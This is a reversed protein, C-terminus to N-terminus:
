RLNVVNAAPLAAQPLSEALFEAVFSTAPKNRLETPTGIQEIRGKNM